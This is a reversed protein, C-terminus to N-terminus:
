EESEPYWSLSVSGANNRVLGLGGGYPHAYNLVGHFPLPPTNSGYYTGSFRGNRKLTITTLASEAWIQTTRNRRNLLLRANDSHVYRKGGPRTFQGDFVYFTTLRTIWPSEIFFDIKTRTEGFMNQDPAAVPEFRCGSVDFTVEREPRAWTLDGFDITDVPASPQPLTLEGSLIPKKKRNLLAISIKGEGTVATGVSWPQGNPLVGAVRASGDSKVTAIAYGDTSGSQRYLGLNYQGGYERALQEPTLKPYDVQIQSGDVTTRLRLTPEPTLVLEATVTIKQSSSRSALDKTVTGSTSFYLAGGYHQGNLNIQITGSRLPSLFAKLSGTQGLAGGYGGAFQKFPDETTPPNTIPIVPGSDNGGGIGIGIIIFGNVKAQPTFLVLASLLASGFTSRLSHANLFRSISDLRM